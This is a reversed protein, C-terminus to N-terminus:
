TAEGAVGGELVLEQNLTTVLAKPSRKGYLIWPTHGWGFDSDVEWQPGATPIPERDQLGTYLVISLAVNQVM